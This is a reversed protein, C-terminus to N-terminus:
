SSASQNSSFHPTLGEWCRHYDKQLLRTRLAFPTPRCVYRSEFMFALTGEQYYPKLAALTAQRYTAADPGHPSMANHLSGGGPVFGKAKADYTGEISGMFESMCNRHFYPPRFTHTAVVWRPPFIVFDVNAAGMQSSPSTLVTFISPDSHDFTVSNVAQFRRLDYKYPVYNGHWAVVDFPSHKLEAEWLNGQFKAILSFNEQRDEYYAVPTLFDRPNALGNAGIPGLPPLRFLEGYNECIYGRASEEMLLVQFRMGRQVICIEGPSVEMKGFETHVLLKGEQPVMLFDGDANYFFRKEMSRNCAYLHVAYGMQMHTDGNGGLTILGELFDTPKSPIPLPDWRLQTPPSAIENFPSSRLHRRKIKRFPKHLVSPRIRYFWSRRNGERPTTFSTGSLQEAYLGYPVKQPSNQGIPLAGKLAESSFENGFGSQYALSSSYM